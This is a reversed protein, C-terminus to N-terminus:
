VSPFLQASRAADSAIEERAQQPTLGRSIYDRYNSSQNLTQEPLNIVMDYAQGAADGGSMAM